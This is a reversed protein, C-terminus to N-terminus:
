RLAKQNYFSTSPKKPKKTNMLNKIKNLVEQDKIFVKQPLFSQLHWPLAGLKKNAHSQSRTKAVGIRAESSDDESGELLVQSQDVFTINVLKNEAKVAYEKNHDSRGAKQSPFIDNIKNKNRSNYNTVTEKYELLAAM